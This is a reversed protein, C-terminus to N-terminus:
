IVLGKLMRSSRARTFLKNRRVFAAPSTTAVRVSTDTVADYTGNGNKDRYLTVTVGADDQTASAFKIGTKFNIGRKRFARELAKSAAADENPVLHPLAEVITVDTGFSKWVSALTPPM